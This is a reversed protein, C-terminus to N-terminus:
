IFIRFESAKFIVYVSFRLQIGSDTKIILHLFIHHESASTTKKGTSHRKEPISVDVVIGSNPVIVNVNPWATLKSDSSIQRFKSAQLGSNSLDIQHIIAELKGTIPFRIKRRIYSQFIPKFQCKFGS